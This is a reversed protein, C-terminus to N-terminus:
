SNSAKTSNKPYNHFYFDCNLIPDYDAFLYYDYYLVLKENKKLMQDYPLGVFGYSELTREEDLYSSKSRNAERYICIKNSAIDTKERIMEILGYIQMHSYVIVDKIYSKYDKLDAFTLM